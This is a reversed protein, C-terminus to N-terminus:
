LGGSVLRRDSQGAAYRRREPTELGRLEPVRLPRAVRRCAARPAGSGRPAQLLLWGPVSEVRALRPEQLGHSETRPGHPPQGGRLRRGALRARAPERAGRLARLRPDAQRRGEPRRSLFRDRRLPQRPRSRFLTTYPFLTSRPPRRIM